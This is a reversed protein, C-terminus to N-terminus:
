TESHSLKTDTPIKKGNEILEILKLSNHAKMHKNKYHSIMSALYKVYM